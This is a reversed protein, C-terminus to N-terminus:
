KGAVTGGFARKLLHSSLTEGSIYAEDFQAYVENAKLAAHCMDM